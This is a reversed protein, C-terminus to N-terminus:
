KEIDLIMKAANEWTYQELTDRIGNNFKNMYKDKDKYADLMAQALDDKHPMFTKAGESARWYQYEPKALVEKADYLISNKDNLFDIQGTCKPAIVLMNAALGELFPIGFGESSTASVLCDCANYLPIMSPIKTQLIEIYPLKKGKSLYYKQILYIQKAIDAEFTHRKRNKPSELNTKLVLCVDDEASFASYYAEVVVNINKRYHPISVNLFKFTKDNRLPFENKNKFEDLNIGHPIVRCKEEPWGNKVFVYKSFESSPLAFDIRKIEKTWEKPMIDTEYNFIAMKLKSKKRFRSKFNRPLTYCIDIDPEPHDTDKCPDLVSPFFNYGDTSTIYCKNDLNHIQVLLEKMTVAWSHHGDLMTLTRVKKM